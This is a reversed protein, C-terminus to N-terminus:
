NLAVARVFSAPLQCPIVGSFNVKLPLHSQAKQAIGQGQQRQSYQIPIRRQGVEVFVIAAIVAVMLLLLALVQVSAMEGNQVMQLM